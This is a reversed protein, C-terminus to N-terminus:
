PLEEQFSERINIEVTALFLMTSAMTSRISAPVGGHVSAIRVPEAGAAVVSASLPVSSAVSVNLVVAKPADADPVAVAFAMVLSVLISAVPVAACKRILFAAPVVIM